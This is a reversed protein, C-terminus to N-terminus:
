VHDRGIQGKDSDRPLEDLPRHVSWSRGPKLARDLIEDELADEVKRFASPEGSNGPAVIFLSTIQCITLRYGAADLRACTAAVNGLDRAVEQALWAEHDEAVLTGDASFVKRRALSRFLTTYPFLTDTRTSRPPRRIM